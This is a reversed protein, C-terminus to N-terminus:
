GSNVNCSVTSYLWGPIGFTCLFTPLGALWDKALMYAIPIAIMVSLLVPKAFEGSLMLLIQVASQGHVKRISIEKKRREANFTALGFLGLCSILIAIGAFYKSLTSVRMEAAYQVAYTQDLFKYDFVM